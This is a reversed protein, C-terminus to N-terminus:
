GVVNIPSEGQGVPVSSQRNLLVDNVGEDCKAQEITEKHAPEMAAQRKEYYRLKRRWFTEKTKALKVKRSWVTLMKECHLMKDAVKEGFTLKPKESESHMVLPLQDTWAWFERWGPKWGYHVNNMVKGHHLRQNHALEHAIVKALARKDPFVGRVFTLM